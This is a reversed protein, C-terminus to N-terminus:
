LYVVGWRCWDALWWKSRNVSIQRIANRCCQGALVIAIHRVALAPTEALLIPRQATAFYMYASKGRKPKPRGGAAGAGDPSYEAREKQYRQQAGSRYAVCLGTLCFFLRRYRRSLVSM